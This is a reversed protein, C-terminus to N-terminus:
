NVQDFMFGIQDNVARSSDALGKFVLDSLTFDDEMFPVLLETMSIAKYLVVGFIKNNPRTHRLLLCFSNESKDGGFTMSDWSSGSAPTYSCSGTYTPFTTSASITTNSVGLALRLNTMNLEATKCRIEANERIAYTQVEGLMNAPKFSIKERVYSWEVTDKLHGVDIGEIFIDASGVTVNETQKNETTAM